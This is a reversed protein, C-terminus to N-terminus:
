DKEKFEQAQEGGGGGMRRGGAVDATCEHREGVDSAACGRRDSKAGGERGGGTGTEYSM